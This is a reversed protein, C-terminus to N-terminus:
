GVTHDLDLDGSVPARFSLWIAFTAAGLNITGFDNAPAKMAVMNIRIEARFDM